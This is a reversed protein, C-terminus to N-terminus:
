VRQAGPRGSEVIWTSETRTRAVPSAVSDVVRFDTQWRDRNVDCRVYGRYRPEHYIIHPNEPLYKSFDSGNSSISTGVFEAAVVPSEPDRFDALLDSVWSTHIDGGISVPNSVEGSAFAELIRARAQWYGDWGDTWYGTGTGVIEELEAMLYQQALVNWHARSNRFGDFLWREQGAGLMQRDDFFEPCDKIDVVQGGGRGNEDCVQDERYQRTDLVNFEVLDGYTLRRYLRMDPGQPLSSRRLPLHEYFAQYAAARRELFLAPDLNQDQSEEDAYDNDVEHDDWTAVFSHAAHAAQLSRDTKYQAHRNRYGVLDEPEGIGEHRRVQGQGGPGEYIYDGLHFVLDIEEEAMGDYAPYYGQTYNQCSAFALRMSRLVAGAAPATKTRGVPSVEQGAKFRYYYERGPELGSVEAHVSHGLDPSSVETGRRVVKRFSEDAALEWRVSVNRDPMGGGNLPDPALRTWLVVGDPLPEGSAVGLSFPDEEFRPSKLPSGDPQALLRAPDFILAAAGLGGAGIFARRSIRRSEWNGTLSLAEEEWIGYVQVAM